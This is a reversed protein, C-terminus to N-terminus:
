KIEVTYHYFHVYVRLYYTCVRVKIIGKQFLRCSFLGINGECSYWLLPVQYFSDFNLNFYYQLIFCKARLHM